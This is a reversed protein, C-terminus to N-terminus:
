FRSLVPAQVYEQGQSPTVDEEPIDAYDDETIHVDEDYDYDDHGGYFYEYEEDTMQSHVGWTRDDEPDEYRAHIDWYRTNNDVPDEVEIHDELDLKQQEVKVKSEVDMKPTMQQEVEKPTVQQIVEPAVQQEMKSAVEQVVEKPTVKQEQGLIHLEKEASVGQAVESADLFMSKPKPTEVKFMPEEKGQMRAQQKRKAREGAQIAANLAANTMMQKSVNINTAIREKQAQVSNVVKDKKEGVKHAVKQSGAKVGYSLTRAGDAVKVAGAKAVAKSTDKVQRAKEVTATGVKKSVDVTKKGVISAGKVLAKGATKTAKMFDRVRPTKIVYPKYRSLVPEKKQGSKEQGLITLEDNDEYSLLSATLESLSTRSTKKQANEMQLDAFDSEDFSVYSSNNNAQQKQEMGRVDDINLFNAKTEPKRERLKAVKKAEIEDEYDAYQSVQNIAYKVEDLEIENEEISANQVRQFEKMAAYMPDNESLVYDNLYDNTFKVGKDAHPAFTRYMDEKTIGYADEYTRKDDGLFDEYVSSVSQKGTEAHAFMDEMKDNLMLQQEESINEPDIGLVDIVEDKVQNLMKQHFMVEEQIPLYRDIGEKSLGMFACSSRRIEPALTNDSAVSVHELLEQLQSAKDLTKPDKKKMEQWFTSLGLGLDIHHRPRDQGFGIAHVPKPKVVRDVINTMTKALNEDYLLSELFEQRDVKGLSFDHILNKAKLNKELVRQKKQLLAKTERYSERIRAVFKM